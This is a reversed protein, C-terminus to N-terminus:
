VDEIFNVTPSSSKRLQLMLDMEQDSALRMRCVPNDFNLPEGSEVAERLPPRFTITASSVGAYTVTRVRYLREGISFHQGPEITGAYTITVPLSVARASAPGAATVNIVQGIYGTDDDFFSGDDHPFEDYLGAEVAGEPIPQYGRCLPILIPNAQGELLNAIARFALVNERGHVRINALTAKWIGADSAVVQSFGSITAPARISRSAIDFAVDRPALADIPWMITM